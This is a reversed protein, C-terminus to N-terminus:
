SLVYKNYQNIIIKEESLLLQLNILVNQENEKLLAVIEKSSLEKHLNILQLITKDLKKVNSKLCVDCIGCKKSTTEGFYNLLYNSRCLTNQEVFRISDNIKDNKQQIFRTINKSIRNITKDDERPQLFSLQINTNAKKYDILEEKHLQELNKIVKKSTIGLKKAINFEDIKIANEFLGGYMRLLIKIFQEKKSNGNTYNLIQPSNVLFQLTSKKQYNDNQQIIGNTSLIQLTHYVKSPKFGYKECFLLLNFDFGEETLEGKAIQFNQYLKKHIKKVKKLTPYSKKYLEKTAIIDSNSLLVVSFSKTGNRGARGAEQMYSELSTPLHLHVVVKVNPKDIGMGFANTAVMIPTKEEMWDNFAVKKEISSLGGHYFSAKFGNAKLFKSIKKTKKRTNVYVIAPQKTKNFIQKLKYLKDETYFIQYALNERYFSKKFIHVDKLELSTIIDEIIKKTASATLCIVPADKCLAILDKINRYAPRFDHGWESICHAEDITILSVKLQKIKEKIFNSQLREPSIYLFKFNGYQLNDFLAIIEDQSSNGEIRLAKIGKKNLNAIQDDMLATLPSVVICIGEKLLAPVQFCISKGGGTPLLALTNKNNLVANIIEEQPNRFSDFGWYNKLVHLPTKNLQM